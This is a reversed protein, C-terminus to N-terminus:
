HTVIVTRETANITFHLNNTELVKLLESLTVGRPVQGSFTISAPIADNFVFNVDYWREASRLIATLPTNRFVQEGNKWAIAMETDAEPVLKLEGNAKSVGQEGPKLLLSQAKTRVKVSGELLTTLLAPENSYAMVNFHTGLVEVSTNAAHVIFPKSADKSVEFYAEGTIEVERSNGKFAAPFRISSEANLWVHTGDHLVLQQQRARPTSLVNVAAENASTEERGFVIVSGPTKSVTHTLMGHRATDLVITKGNALKLVAGDTGPQLDTPLQQQEAQQSSLQQMKQQQLLHWGALSFAVIAAAAAAVRVIRKRIPVVPSIEKQLRQLMRERLALKSEAM